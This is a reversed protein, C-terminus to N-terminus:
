NLAALIVDPADTIVCHVGMGVLAKAVAGDNITYVSLAFGAARIEVARPATLRKGSTNVGVAGVADTRSRWGDQLDDILLARDFEPAM